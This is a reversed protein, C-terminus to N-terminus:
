GGGWVQLAKVLSLRGALFAWRSSWYLCQGSALARVERCRRSWPPKGRQEMVGMLMRVMLLSLRGAPLLKSCGRGWGPVGARPWPGLWSPLARILWASPSLHCCGLPRPFVRGMKCSLIGM